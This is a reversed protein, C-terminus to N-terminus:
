KILENLKYIIYKSKQMEILVATLIRQRKLMKLNVHISDQFLMIYNLYLNM